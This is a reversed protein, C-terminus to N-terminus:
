LSLGAKAGLWSRTKAVNADSMVGSAIISGYWRINSNAYGHGASGVTFGGPAQTGANGTAYAGNNIALKSSAGNWVETVVEDANLVSSFNSLAAGAYMSLIDTGSLYLGGQFATASEFLRSSSSYSLRRVGGIRTYPQALTFSAQLYDDVGDFLLWSYGGSIKYIPRKSATAQLLNYGNGSKDNVRAVADGDATVPTTGATDKFLTAVDSVDYWAAPLLSGPAWLRSGGRRMM